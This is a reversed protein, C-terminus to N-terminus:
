LISLFYKISIEVFFLLKLNSKEINNFYLFESITPTTLALKGNSMVPFKRQNNNGWHISELYSVFILLQLPKQFIESEIVEMKTTFVFMQDPKTCYRGCM